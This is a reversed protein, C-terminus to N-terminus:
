RGDSLKKSMTIHPIGAEHFVAGTASFGLLRYFPQADVQANLIVRDHGRAIAAELLHKMIARGVGQHRADALVALRGIHGDPLLRGTGIVRGARDRALAHLCDADAADYELAAPVGQEEVFVRQRVGKAETGLAAWDGLEVSAKM